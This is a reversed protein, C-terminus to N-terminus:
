FTANPPLIIQDVVHIVGNRAQIDPQVVQANGVTVQSTNPDVEVNVSQGELTTPVEGSQLQSATLQEPVIHYSLLQRLQDRNADDTLEQRTAEPLAAFAEDSPAFITFPGSEELTSALDAEDLVEAFTSLSPTNAIVDPLDEDTTAAGTTPVADPAVTAGPSSELTTDPDTSTQATNTECAAFIPLALFGIGVIALKQFSRNNRITM